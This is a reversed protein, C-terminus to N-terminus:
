YTEKSLCFLECTPSISFRKADGASGTYCHRPLCVGLLLFSGFIWSTTDLGQCDPDPLWPSTALIQYGLDPLMQYGPDALWSITVM